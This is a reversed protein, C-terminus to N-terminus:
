YFVPAWYDVTAALIVLATAVWLATKVISDAVPTRCYEGDACAPKTRGYVQRFGFGLFVLTAAIFLPQYAQLASLSGIWAGTVGLTVLVLPLICCSSALIAGAVSGAAAISRRPVPM